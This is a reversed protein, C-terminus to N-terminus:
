ARYCSYGAMPPLALDVVDDLDHDGLLQAFFGSM